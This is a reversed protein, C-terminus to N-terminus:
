AERSFCNLVEDESVSVKVELQFPFKFGNDQLTKIAFDYYEPYKKLTDMLCVHFNRNIEMPCKSCTHSGCYVEIARWLEHKHNPNNMDFNM